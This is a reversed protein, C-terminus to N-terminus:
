IRDSHQVTRIEYIFVQKNLLWEFKENPKMSAVCEELGVQRKLVEAAGISDGTLMVCELGLSKLTQIVLKSTPRCKDALGLLM